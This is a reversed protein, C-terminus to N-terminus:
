VAVWIAFTLSSCAEVGGVKTGRYGTHVPLTAGATDSISKRAINDVQTKKKTSKLIKKNQIHTYIWFPGDELSAVVTGQIQCHRNSAATLM